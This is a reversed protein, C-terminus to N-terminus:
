QIGPAPKGVMFTHPNVPIGSVRIEFHVHPGTSAGTSGELGIIDGPKVDAKKSTLTQSLHGYISTVGYGHDVIVHKGFGGNDVDIVDLVKGSMFVTVQDGILGYEDAIDIGTHYEQWPMHPVGFEESIYGNVPWVTTAEFQKMVNGNPDKIEVMHTIPNLSALAQAVEAVGANAITVVAFIPLLFLVTLVAAIVKLENKCGRIIRWLLSKKM